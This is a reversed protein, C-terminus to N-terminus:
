GVGAWEVEGKEEREAVSLHPGSTMGLRRGNQGGRVTRKARGNAIRREGGESHGGGEISTILGAM